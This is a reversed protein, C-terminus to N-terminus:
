GGTAPRAPAPAPTVPAPTTQTTPSNTATTTTRNTPMLFFFGLIIALAAIGLPAGWGMGTRTDRLPTRTHNDLNPDNPFTMRERRPTLRPLVVGNNAAPEQGWSLM